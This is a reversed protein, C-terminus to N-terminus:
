LVKPVRFLGAKLVGDPAQAIVEDRSISPAPVDDRGRDAGAPGAPGDSGASETEVEQVIAAYSLIDTLQRAFTEREAPSLEVRALDAIHAVEKETLQSAV